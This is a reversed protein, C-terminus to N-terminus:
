FNEQRAAMCSAPTGDAEKFISNYDDHSVLANSKSRYHFQLARRRYPTRNVPTMHPLSSHFILIGGPKLHVPVVDKELMRDELIECDSGQHHHRLPGKRHGGPWVHMCGNEATAEDLAIWVGVMKDLDMVRFYANDQHWPKEVGGNAPKLLAMSQYIEISEELLAELLPIIRPHTLAIHQFIPAEQEFWCFKRVKPEISDIDQPNPTYGPEVQFFFRSTKSQFMAGSYNSGDADEPIITEAKEENFAFDRVLDSISAKAGIVEEETLAEEYALYGQRWYLERDAETLTSPFKM